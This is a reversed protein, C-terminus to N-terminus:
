QVGAGSEQDQEAQVDLVGVINHLHLGLNQGGGSATFSILGESEDNERWYTLENLDAGRDYVAAVIRALAGRSSAVRINYSRRTM